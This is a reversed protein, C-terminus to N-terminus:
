KKLVSNKVKQEVAFEKEHSVISKVRFMSVTKKSCTNWEQAVCFIKFWCSDREEHLMGKKKDWLMAKQTVSKLGTCCM